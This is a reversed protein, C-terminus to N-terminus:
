PVQGKEVFRVQVSLSNLVMDRSFQGSPPELIGRKVLGDPSCLYGQVGVLDVFRQRWEEKTLSVHDHPSADSYDPFLASIPIIDRKRGGFFHVTSPGRTEVETFARDHQWSAEREFAFPIADSPTAKSVFWWFDRPLTGGYTTGEADTGNGAVAVARYLYATGSAPTYDLYSGNEACTGLDTWTSGDDASRQITNSAVAPQSGTPTPNTVTVELHPPFQDANPTVVISPTAPATFAVTFTRVVETSAVDKADWVTVKVKYDTLDALTYSVTKSRASVSATKTSDWLEVDADTTLRVQYASQGESEPDSFSWEAVLTPGTVTTGDTAPVTITVTPKASAYFTSYSSWAGESDAADWTKVRWQYQFANTLTGGTLTYSSTGSATKGTDVATSGDLVKVIQLQYASQTDGADTDNFTWIFDASATADFNTRTTLTPATPATNLSLRYHEINFPSGAGDTYVLDLASGGSDRRWTPYNASTSSDITEASGWSAGTRDYKRYFLGTAVYAVYINDTLTDVVVSLANATVTTPTRDSWTGGTSREKVALNGDGSKSYAVVLRGTSDLVSSLYGSTAYNSEDIVEESDWTWSGSSYTAKKARVGKGTGTLQTTWVAYLNKSSDVSISPYAIQNSEVTGIGSATGATPSGGSTIDVKNYKVIAETSGNTVAWVLHAAWGSGETHVVIDPFRELTSGAPSDFGVLVSSGWTWSTRGAAAAGRIYRIDGDNRFAIHIHDSADIAVSFNGFGSELTTVTAASGFTTGNDQSVAYKIAAGDAWFDVLHNQGSVATNCRVVKRQNSYATAVSTTSTTVVTPDIEVPFSAVQLWGWSVGQYLRRTGDLDTVIRMQGAGPNGDADVATVRALHQIDQGDASRLFVEGMTAFDQNRKGTPDWIELGEPLAVGGTLTLLSTEENVLVGDPARFPVKLTITLKLRDHLAQYTVTYGPHDFTITDGSVVAEIHALAVLPDIYGLHDVYAVAEPSYTMVHGARHTFRWLVGDIGADLYGAMEATYQATQVRWPFLPDGSPLWVPDADRHVLGPTAM